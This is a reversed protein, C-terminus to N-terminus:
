TPSEVVDQSVNELSKLRRLETYLRFNRKLM